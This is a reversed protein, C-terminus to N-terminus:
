GSFEIDHDEYYSKRKPPERLHISWMEKEHGTSLLIDEDISCLYRVRDETLNCWSAIMRTSHFQNDPEKAANKQLWGRIRKRERSDVVKKHVYQSWYVALGAFAGGVSGIVIGEVITSM